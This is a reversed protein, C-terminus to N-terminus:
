CPNSTVVAAVVVMRGSTLLSFTKMHSRISAVSKFQKRVYPPANGFQDTSGDHLTWIVVSAAHGNYVYTKDKENKTMIAVGGTDFSIPPRQPRTPAVVYTYTKSVM